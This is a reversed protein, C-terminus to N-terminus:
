KKIYINKWYHIKKNQNHKHAKSNLFNAINIVSFILIKLIIYM